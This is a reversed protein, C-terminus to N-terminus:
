LKWAFAQSRPENTHSATQANTHLVICFIISQDAHCKWWLHFAASGIPPQLHNKTMIWILIWSDELIIKEFQSQAHKMM